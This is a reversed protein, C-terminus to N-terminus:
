YTLTVVVSDSYTGVHTKQGAAIQGYITLIQSGGAGTGGRSNGVTNGWPQSHAADQYLGYILMGPGNMMRRDTPGSAGTGNGLGLDVRYPTAATCRVDITAQGAVPTTLSASINGFDLAGVNLECSSVVNASVTFNPAVATTGVLACSALGFRMTVNSAGSFVSTYSGTGVAVSNSTIDAYIPVNASGNGLAVPLLVFLSTLTGFASGNGGSRLEYNLAANDARRMYRPSNGAGAGGGGPGFDVCVGITAVLVGSCTIAVNGSTSNTAGARVSVSGFNIASVVASCTAAEARGMMLALFLLTASIRRLFRLQKM